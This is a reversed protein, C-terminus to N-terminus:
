TACNAGADGTLRRQAAPTNSLKFMLMRAIENGVLVREYDRRSAIM